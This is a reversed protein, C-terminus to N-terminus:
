TKNCASGNCQKQETLPANRSHTYVCLPLQMLGAHASSSCATNGMIYLPSFSGKRKNLLLGLIFSLAVSLSLFISFRSYFVFSCLNRQSLFADACLRSYSLHARTQEYRSDGVFKTVDYQSM